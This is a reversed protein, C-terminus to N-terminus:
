PLQETVHPPPVLFLVRVHEQHPPPLTQGQGDPAEHEVVALAVEQALVPVPEAAFPDHVAVKEADHLVLQQGPLVNRCLRM